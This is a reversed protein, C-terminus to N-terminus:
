NHWTVEPDEGNFPERRYLMEYILMGLAYVDSSCSPPSGHLVEPAVWFPYCRQLLRDMDLQVGCVCEQRMSHVANFVHLSHLKRQEAIMLSAEEPPLRSSMLATDKNRLLPSVATADQM